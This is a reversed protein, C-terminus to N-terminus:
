CNNCGSKFKPLPRYKVNKRKLLLMAQQAKTDSSERLDEEVLKRKAMVM